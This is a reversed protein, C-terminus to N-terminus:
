TAVLELYRERRAPGLALISSESWGYARALTHVENFLREALACIEAWLFGGVDFLQAWAHSCDPCSLRLETVASPDAEVLREDIVSLLEAPLDDSAVAVGDREATLLCRDLLSRGGVAVLADIDGVTAPRVTARYGASSLTVPRTDAVYEAMDPGLSAADLRFELQERCAPCVVTCEMVNGFTRRRVAFLRVDREGLTLADLDETSETVAGAAVLVARARQGASARRGLEWVRLVDADSLRQM